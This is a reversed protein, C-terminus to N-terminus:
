TLNYKCLIQVTRRKSPLTIYILSYCIERGKLDLNNYKQKVRTDGSLKHLIEAKEANCRLPTISKKKLQLKVLRKEAILWIPTIKKVM